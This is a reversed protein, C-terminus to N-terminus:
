NNFGPINPMSIDGSQVKRAMMKQVDDTANNLANQLGNELKEKSETNLLENDIEIKQVKHNGDVTVKIMGGEKESTITEASLSNQLAKAQKRLDQIQKLKNFM